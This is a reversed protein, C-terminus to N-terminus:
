RLLSPVCTQHQLSIWIHTCVGTFYEELEPTWMQCLSDQLICIVNFPNIGSPQCYMCSAYPFGCMGDVYHHEKNAGNSAYARINFVYEEAEQQADEEESGEEDEDEEDEDEEEEEEKENKKDLTFIVVDDLAINHSRCFSKWYPGM